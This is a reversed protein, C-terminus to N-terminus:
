KLFMEEVLQNWEEPLSVKPMMRGAKTYWYSANSLDGEKRHLYAHVLSGSSNNIEQAIKHAKDWEGKADHWLAKLMDNLGDPPSKEKVSSKFENITM